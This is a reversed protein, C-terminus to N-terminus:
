PGSFSLALLFRLDVSQTPTVLGDRKLTWHTDPFSPAIVLDKLRSFKPGKTCLKNNSEVAVLTACRLLWNPAGIWWAPKENTSLHRAPEDAYFLNSAKAAM